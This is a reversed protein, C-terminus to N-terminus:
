DRGAQARQGVIPACLRSRSARTASRVARSFAMVSRASAASAAFVRNRAVTLWSTRVGSFPTIPMALTTSAASRSGRVRRLTSTM